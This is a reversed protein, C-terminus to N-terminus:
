GNKPKFDFDLNKALLVRKRFSFYEELQSRLTQYATANNRRRVFFCGSSEMSLLDVRTKYIKDKSVLPLVYLPTTMPEVPAHPISSSTSSSLLIPAFSSSNSAPISPDNKLDIRCVLSVSLEATVYTHCGISAADMRINFGTRPECKYRYSQIKIIQM